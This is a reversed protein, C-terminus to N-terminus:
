RVDGSVIFKNTLSVPAEISQAFSIESIEFVPISSAMVDDYIENHMYREFLDSANIGVTMKSSPNTAKQLEMERKM